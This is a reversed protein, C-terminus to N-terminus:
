FPHLVSCLVLIVGTGFRVQKNKRWVTVTFKGDATQQMEHPTLERTRSGNGIIGAGRDGAGAGGGADDGGVAAPGM